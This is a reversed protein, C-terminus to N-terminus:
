LTDMVATYRILRWVYEEGATHVYVVIMGCLCDAQFLLNGCRGLIAVGVELRAGESASDPSFPWAARAARRVERPKRRRELDVSGRLSRLGEPLRLFIDLAWAM